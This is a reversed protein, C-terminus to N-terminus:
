LIMKTNVNRGSYGTVSLRYNDSEPGILFHKYEAFATNGEFDTM